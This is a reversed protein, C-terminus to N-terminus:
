KETEGGALSALLELVALPSHWFAQPARRVGCTVRWMRPRQPHGEAHACVHTAGPMYGPKWMCAAGPAHSCAPVQECGPCPGLM